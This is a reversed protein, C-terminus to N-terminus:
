RTYLKPFISLSQLLINLIKIKDQNTVQLDSKVHLFLSIDHPQGESRVPSLSKLQVHTNPEVKSDHEHFAREGYEMRKLPWTETPGTSISVWGRDRRDRRRM